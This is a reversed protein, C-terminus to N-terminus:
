KSSDMIMVVLCSYWLMRFLVMCHWVMCHLVYASSTLSPTTSSLAAHCFSAHGPASITSSFCSRSAALRVTLSYTNHYYIKLTIHICYMLYHWFIGFNLCLFSIIASMVGESVSPRAQCSGGPTHGVWWAREQLPILHRVRAATDRGPRQGGLVHIFEQCGESGISTPYTLARHHLNYLVM